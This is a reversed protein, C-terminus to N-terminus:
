SFKNNLMQTIQEVAESENEWNFQESLEVLFLSAEELSNKSDLKEINDNYTQLDGSFLENLFFFKENIGIASKISELNNKQLRDAVTEQVPPIDQKETSLENEELEQEQKENFLDLVDGTAIEERTEPEIELIIEKGSEPEAEVIIEEESKVEPEQFFAPEKEPKTDPALIEDTEIEHLPSEMEQVSEDIDLVFNVEPIQEELIANVEIEQKDDNESAAKLKLLEDYMQKLKDKSLDIELQSLDDAKDKKLFIQLEKMAEYLRNLHETNTM